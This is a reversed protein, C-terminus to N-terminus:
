KKVRIPSNLLLLQLGLGRQRTLLKDMSVVRHAMAHIDDGTLMNMSDELDQRRWWSGELGIEKAAREEDYGMMRLNRYHILEALSSLLRNHLWTEGFREMMSFLVDFKSRKTLTLVNGFHTSMLEEGIRTERWGMLKALNLLAEFDEYDRASSWDLRLLRRLQVKRSEWIVKHRHKLTDFEETAATPAQCTWYDLQSMVAKLVDRKKRPTYAEVKLLGGDTEAVVYHGKAPTLSEVWAQSFGELVFLQNGGFLNHEEIIGKVQDAFSRKKEYAFFRPQVSLRRAVARALLYALYKSKTTRAVTLVSDPLGKMHEIYSLVTDERETM